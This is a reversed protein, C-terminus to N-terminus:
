RGGPDEILDIVQADLVSQSSKGIKLATLPLHGKGAM